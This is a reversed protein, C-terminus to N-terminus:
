LAIEEFNEIIVKKIEPFTKKGLIKNLILSRQYDLKMTKESKLKNFLRSGEPTLKFMYGKDTINTSVLNRSVLYALYLDNKSNWISIRDEEYLLNYKEYNSIKLNKSLIPKFLNCLKELFIPNKLFFILISLKHKEYITDKPSTGILFVLQTIELYKINEVKIM